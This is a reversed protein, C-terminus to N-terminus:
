EDTEVIEALIEFTDTDPEFVYAAIDQMFEKAEDESSFLFTQDLEPRSTFIKVTTEMGNQTDHQGVTPQM